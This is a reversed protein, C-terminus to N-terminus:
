LNSFDSGRKRRRTNGGDCSGYTDNSRCRRIAYIAETGTNATRCLSAGESGATDNRSLGVAKGGSETGGMGMLLVDEYQNIARRVMKARKIRQEPMGSGAAAMGGAECETQRGHM